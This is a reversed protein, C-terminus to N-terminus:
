AQLMRKKYVDFRDEALEICYAIFENVNSLMGLCTDNEVDNGVTDKLIVRGPCENCCLDDTRSSCKEIRYVIYTENEDIELSYAGVGEEWPDKGVLCRKYRVKSGKRIKSKAM